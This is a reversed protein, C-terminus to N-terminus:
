LKIFESRGYYNWEFQKKTKKTTRCKHWIAKSPKDYVSPSGAVVCQPNTIHFISSQFQYLIMTVWYSIIKINRLTIYIQNKNDQFDFKLRSGKPHPENPTNTFRGSTAVNSRQVIEKEM